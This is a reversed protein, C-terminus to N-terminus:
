LYKYLLPELKNSILVRLLVILDYLAGFIFRTFMM